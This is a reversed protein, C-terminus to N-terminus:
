NKVHSRETSSKKNNTVVGLVYRKNVNKVCNLLQARQEENFDDSVYIFAMKTTHDFHWWSFCSGNDPWDKSVYTEMMANYIVDEVDWSEKTLEM